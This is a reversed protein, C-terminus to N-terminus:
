LHFTQTNIPSQITLENLLFKVKLMITKPIDIFQNM